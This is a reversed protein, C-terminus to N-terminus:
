GGPSIARLFGPDLAVPQGHPTHRYAEAWAHSCAAMSAADSLRKAIIMREFAALWCDYYRSGDDPEGRAASSKLEDGFVQAWESWSFHGQRSLSVTLAFV